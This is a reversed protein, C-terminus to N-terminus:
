GRTPRFTPTPPRGGTHTLGLSSNQSNRMENTCTIEHAIASPSGGHEQTGGAFQRGPRACSHVTRHVRLRPRVPSCARLTLSAPPSARCALRTCPRHASPSVRRPPSVKSSQCCFPLLFATRGEEMTRLVGLKGCPNAAGPGEAECHASDLRTLPILLILTKHATHAPAGCPARFNSRDACIQGTEVVRTIRQAM